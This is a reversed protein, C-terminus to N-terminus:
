LEAKSLRSFLGQILFASAPLTIALQATISGLCVGIVGLRHTLFISLALNSLSGTVAIIMQGRLVGAGNLLMAMVNSIASVVGWIALVVFVSIPIPLSKGM